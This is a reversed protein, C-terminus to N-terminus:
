VQGESTPLGVGDHLIAHGESQGIMLALWAEDTIALADTPISCEPNVVLVRPDEDSPVRLEGNIKTDYFGKTSPSYYRAM